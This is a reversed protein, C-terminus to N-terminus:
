LSFAPTFFRAHDSSDNPFCVHDSSNGLLAGIARPTSTAGKRRTQQNYIHLLVLSHVRVLPLPTGTLSIAEVSTEMTRWVYVTYARAYGQM